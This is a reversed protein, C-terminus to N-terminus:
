QDIALMSITDHTNLSDVLQPGWDDKSSMNEKWELWRKRSDETLLNEEKFGHALAFEKARHEVPKSYRGSIIATLLGARHALEIGAGDYVNFVKTESGDADIIIGGDTLVGDVDMILMKIQKAKETMSM